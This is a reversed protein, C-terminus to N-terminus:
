SRLARQRRTYRKKSSSSSRRVKRTPASLPRRRGRGFTVVMRKGIDIIDTVVVYLLNGRSDRFEAEPVFKVGAISVIYNGTEVPADDPIQDNAKTRIAFQRRSVLVPMKAMQTFFVKAQDDEKMEAETRRSLAYQFQPSHANAALLENNHPIKYVFMPADGKQVATVGIAPQFKIDNVLEEENSSEDYYKWLMGQRVIYRLFTERMQQKREAEKGPIDTFQVSLYNDAVTTMKGLVSGDTQWKSYASKCQTGATCLGRQIDILHAQTKSEKWFGVLHAGSGSKMGVGRQFYIPTIHGVPLRDFIELLRDEAPFLQNLVVTDPVTVAGDINAYLQAGLLIAGLNFQETTQLINLAPNVNEEVDMRTQLTNGVRELAYVLEDSYYKVSDASILGCIYYALAKCNMGTKVTSKPALITELEARSFPTSVLVREVGSAKAITATLPVKIAPSYSAVPAAASSSSSSSGEGAARRAASSM